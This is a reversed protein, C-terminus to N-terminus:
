GPHEREKKPWNLGCTVFMLKLSYYGIQFIIDKNEYSSQFTKPLLSKSFQYELNPVEYLHQKSLCCFM